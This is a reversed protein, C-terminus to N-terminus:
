AANTPADVCQLHEIECGSAATPALDIGNSVKPIEFTSIFENLSFQSSRTLCVPLLPVQLSHLTFSLSAQFSRLSMHETPEFSRM